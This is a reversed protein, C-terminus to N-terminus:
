RAAVGYPEAKRYGELMISSSTERAVGRVQQYNLTNFRIDLM